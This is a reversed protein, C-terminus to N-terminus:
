ETKLQCNLNVTLYLDHKSQRKLFSYKFRLQKYHLPRSQRRAPRLKSIFIDEIKYDYNKSFLHM